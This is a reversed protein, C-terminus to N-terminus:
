KVLEGSGKTIHRPKKGLESSEEWGSEEKALWLKQPIEQQKCFAPSVWSGLLAKPWSRLELAAKTVLVSRM